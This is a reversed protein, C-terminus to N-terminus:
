MLTPRSFINGAVLSQTSHSFSAFEVSVNLIDSLFIFRVDHGVLM